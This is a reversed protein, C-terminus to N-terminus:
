SCCFLVGSSAVTDAGAVTGVCPATVAGAVYLVLQLVLVLQLILVLQLM